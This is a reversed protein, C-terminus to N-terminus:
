PFFIITINRQSALSLSRGTHLWAKEGSLPLVQSHLQYLTDSLILYRRVKRLGHSLKHSTLHECLYRVFSGSFEICHSSVLFLGALAANRCWGLCGFGLGGVIVECRQAIVLSGGEFRKPSGDLGHRGFGFFADAVLKGSETKVSLHKHGKARGRVVAGEIGTRERHFGM